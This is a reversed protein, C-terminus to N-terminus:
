LCKCTSMIAEETAQSIPLVEIQRFEPLIEEQIKKKRGM